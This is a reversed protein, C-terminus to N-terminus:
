TLILYHFKCASKQAIEKETCPSESCHTHLLWLHPSNIGKETLGEAAHLTPDHAFLFPRPLMGGFLLSQPGRPRVSDHTPTLPRVSPGVGVFYMVVTVRWHSRRRYVPIDSGVSRNASHHPVTSPHVRFPWSPRFFSPPLVTPQALKTLQHLKTLM